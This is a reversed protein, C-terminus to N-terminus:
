LKSWMVSKGTEYWTEIYVNTDGTAMEIMAGPKGLIAMFYPM